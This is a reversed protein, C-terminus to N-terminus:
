PYTDPATSSWGYNFLGSDQVQRGLFQSGRDILQYVTQPDLKGMIRRGAKRGPPYLLKPTEHGGCFVGQTSLMYVPDHDDFTIGPRKGFRQRAYLRFNDEHVVVHPVTAGGYLMANANLEQELFAIEFEPDLALGLRYYNRKNRTMRQKFTSWTMEEAAFVWDVRLWCTDLKTSSALLRANVAGTAWASAISNGRVHVVKARQKGDCLSFFLTYPPNVSKLEREVVGRAPRAIASELPIDLFAHVM